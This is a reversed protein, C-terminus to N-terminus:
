QIAMGHYFDSITIMMVRIKKASSRAGDAEYVGRRGNQALM